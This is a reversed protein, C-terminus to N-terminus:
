TIKMDFTRTVGVKKDDKMGARSQYEVRMKDFSLRITESLEALSSEGAVRVDYDVVRVDFMKVTMRLGKEVRHIMHLTAETFVESRVAATMLSTSSRDVRKKLTMESPDAHNGSGRVGTGKAWEEKVTLSWSWHDIDITGEHARAKADGIVKTKKPGLVLHIEAAEM